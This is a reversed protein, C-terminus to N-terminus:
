QLESTHEESRCRTHATGTAASLKNITSALVTIPLLRAVHDGEAFRKGANVRVIAGPTQAESVQSMHYSIDLMERAIGRLMLRLTFGQASPDAISSFWAPVFDNAPNETTGQAFYHPVWTFGESSTDVKVQVGIEDDVKGWTQWATEGPITTGTALRPRALPRAVIPRFAPDIEAASGAKPILRTIAVGTNANVDQEPKWTLAIGDASTPDYSLILTMTKDTAPPPLPITREEEVILARGACDYALGCPLKLKGNEIKVKHEIASGPLANDPEIASGLGIAIGYAEHVARNHLRRLEEDVRLQTQLDGSALLQGQWYRVRELETTTQAAM